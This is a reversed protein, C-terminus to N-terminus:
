KIGKAHMCRVLACRLLRELLTTRELTPLLGRSLAGLMESTAVVQACGRHCHHVEWVASTARPLM